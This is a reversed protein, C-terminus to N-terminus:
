PASEMQYHANTEGIVLFGVRAYFNIARTNIKMVHLRVPIGLVRAQREMMAMCHEGIGKGQHEPQIMLQKVTICDLDIVAALIGVIDNGVTIIKFDQSAFREHHYDRQTAEDWNGYQKEVYRSFAAKKIAYAVESESDTAERLEIQNASLM